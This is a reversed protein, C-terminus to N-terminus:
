AALLRKRNLSDAFVAIILIIGKVIMQDYSAFGLLNMINGLIGLTFVGVLTNLISGTGGSLSTGGLVIAVIADLEYGNGATPTAGVTRSTLVVAACAAMLGSIMYSVLKVKNVNIGSLRSAEQNFGIMHIKRGFATKSELFALIACSVAIILVPIPLFSFVKGVGIANYFETGDSKLSFGQTYLLSLGQLFLSTGFTLMLSEGSRAKTVIIILGNIAGIACGILLAFCIAWGDSFYQQFSIVLVGTFTMIAGVSIDMYGCLIVFAVGFSLLGLVTYQQVINFINRETFFNKTLLSAILIFVFLIILNFYKFTWRKISM